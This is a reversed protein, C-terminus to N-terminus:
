MQGIMRAVEERKLGLSCIEMTKYIGLVTGVVVVHEFAPSSDGKLWNVVQRQSVGLVDAAKRAVENYDDSPWATILMEAFRERAFERAEVRNARFSKERSFAVSALHSKALASKFFSSNELLSM